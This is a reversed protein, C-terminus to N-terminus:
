QLIISRIVPNPIPIADNWTLNTNLLTLYANGLVIYLFLVDGVISKPLAVFHRFLTDVFSPRM